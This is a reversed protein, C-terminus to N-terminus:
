CHFTVKTVSNKIEKVSGSIQNAPNMCDEQVDVQGDWINELDYEEDVQVGKESPDPSSFFTGRDLLHSPIRGWDDAPDLVYRKTWM